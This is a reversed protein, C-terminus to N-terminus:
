VEMRQQRSGPWAPPVLPPREPSQNLGGHAELQAGAAGKPFIVAMQELRTSKSCGPKETVIFNSYVWGRHVRSDKKQLPLFPHSHIYFGSIRLRIWSVM